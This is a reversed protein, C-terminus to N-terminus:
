KVDDTFHKLVRNSQFRKQNYLKSKGRPISLSTFENQKLSKAIYVIQGVHYAYHSIQRIIADHVTCGMNRIYVTHELDDDQIDDLTEFLTEWGKNWYASLAEIDINPQEFERDRDRWAKEGDSEIFDTWRSLMNGAMHNMIIAISNDYDSARHYIEDQSLQSVSIDALSKYYVFQKKYVEVKSM